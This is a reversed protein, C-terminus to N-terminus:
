TDSLRQGAEPGESSDAAGRRDAGAQQRGGKSTQSDASFPLGRLQQHRDWPLSLPERVGCSCPLRRAQGPPPQPHQPPRSGPPAELTWTAVSTGPQAPPKPLPSRGQGSSRQWGLAMPPRPWDGGLVPLCTALCRTVTRWRHGRWGAGRGEGSVCKSWSAGSQAISSLLVTCYDVQPLSLRGPCGRPGAM